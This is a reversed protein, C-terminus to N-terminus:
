PSDAIDRLWAIPTVGTTPDPVLLADLAAAQEATLAGAVAGLARKRARARGALGIREIRAPAPLIVSRERLGEVVARAIPLGQDTSWAAQAARDLAIALDGAEFGRLGLHAAVEWGHELRTKPRRGYAALLQDSM